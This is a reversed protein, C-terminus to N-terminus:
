LKNREYEAQELLVVAEAAIGEARGIFGLKENTKAKINVRDLPLNLDAALHARMAPIHPGLKPAQAILTSDVNVVRYGAANVLQHAARLLVRSNAGAFRPDTDPFHQGIDGLAAAGLLADILAHLLVDADSHGGLGREYPITVGGIILPRGTVLAHVDYGQGIRVASSAGSDARRKLMAEAWEFDDPYTVKANCPHGKVLRPTYGLAELAGAEDSFVRGAQEARSLADYLIGFRFMQPTQALWREGRPETCAIRPPTAATTDCDAARKLTDSLPLAVIGGVPDDQVASILARILAPMIGPRAADHVLVWDNECVGLEALANLGHWVSQQRHAGGCCRSEFRLSEFHHRDFYADEPALVVLIDTLEACANFASLTHYLLPRGALLRYQKPLGAGTRVGAGACPILVFFRPKM